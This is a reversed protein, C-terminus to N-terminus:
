IAANIAIFAQLVARVQRAKEPLYEGSKEDM